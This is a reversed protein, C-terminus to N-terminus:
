GTGVGGEGVGAKEARTLEAANWQRQHLAIRPALFHKASRQTVAIDLLHEAKDQPSGFGATFEDGGDIQFARVAGRFHDQGAASPSCFTRPARFCPQASPTQVTATAAAM